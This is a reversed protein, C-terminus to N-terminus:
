KILEEVAEIEFTKLIKFARNAKLYERLGIVLVAISFLILPWGVFHAFQWNWFKLLGVGSAALAVTTRVYALMTRDTAMKTRILALGERSVALDDPINIKGRREM